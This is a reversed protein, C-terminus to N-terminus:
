EWIDSNVNEVLLSVDDAGILLRCTGKMELGEAKNSLGLPM